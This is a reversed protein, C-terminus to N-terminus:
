EAEPTEEPLLSYNDAAARLIAQLKKRMPVPEVLMINQGYSAFRAYLETNPRCEISFFTWDGNLGPYKKRFQEEWEGELQM